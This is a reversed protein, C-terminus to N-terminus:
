YDKKLQAMLIIRASDTGQLEYYVIVKKLHRNNIELPIIRSNLRSRILKQVGIDISEGDNLLLKASRIKIDGQSAHFRISKIAERQFSQTVPITVMQETARVRGSGITKWSNDLALAFACASTFLLSLFLFRVNLKCM